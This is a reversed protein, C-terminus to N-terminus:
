EAANHSVEETDSQTPQGSHTPGQVTRGSLTVLNGEMEMESDSVETHSASNLPIICAYRAVEPNDPGMNELLVGDGKSPQTRRRRAKKKDKHM